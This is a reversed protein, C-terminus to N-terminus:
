FTGGYIKNVTLGGVEEDYIISSNDTKVELASEGEENKEFMVSDGLVLGESVFLAQWGDKTYIYSRVAQSEKILVLDGIVPTKGSLASNIYDMDSKEDGSFIGKTKNSTGNIIYNEPLDVSLVTNGGDITITYISPQLETNSDYSIDYDGRRDSKFIALIVCITRKSNYYRIAVPEGYSRTLENLKKVAEERDSYITTFRPYRFEAM